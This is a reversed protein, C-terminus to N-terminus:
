SGDIRALSGEGTLTALDIRALCRVPEFDLNLTGALHVEGTGAAFDAGQLRSAEADIRVGLETGGQTETFRVFVYGHDIAEKLQVAGQGPALSARVPHSGVSLRDVLSPEEDAVPEIVDEDDAHEAMFRRLSLPRMDTWVEDIYSVCEAQTGTRGAERWGAPLAQGVPWLSYQEEHNVVVHFTQEVEDVSETM